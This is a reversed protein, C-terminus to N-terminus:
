EASFIQWAICMGEKEEEVSGRWWWKIACWWWGWCLAIYTLLWVACAAHHLCVKMERMVLKAQGKSATHKV